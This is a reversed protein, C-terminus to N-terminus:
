SRPKSEGFWHLLLSDFDNQNEIKLDIPCVIVLNDSFESFQRWKVADKETLIIPLGKELCSAIDAKSFRHHDSYSKEIVQAVQTRIYSFFDMPHAIGAVVVAALPWQTPQNTWLNYPIGYAPQSFFVPAQSFRGIQQVIFEKKKQSLPNPCKTVVIADARNAGEKSERLWGVPLIADSFFPQHYTTLLIMRHPQIYRHQFVDDLLLLEVQIALEQIKRWGEVRKESVFGRVHPRIFLLPEDGVEDPSSSTEVIRFGKTQRGYGRSLTAIHLHSFRNILYLIM